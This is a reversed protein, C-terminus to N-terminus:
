IFWDFPQKALLNKAASVERWAPSNQLASIFLGAFDNLAFDYFSGIVRRSSKKGRIARIARIFAIRDWGNELGHFGYWQIFFDKM